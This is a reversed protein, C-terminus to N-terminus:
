YSEKCKRTLLDKWLPPSFDTFPKLDRFPDNVGGLKIPEGNELRKLQNYIFDLKEDLHNCSKYVNERLEKDKM